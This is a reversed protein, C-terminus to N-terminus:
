QQGELRDIFESTIEEVAREVNLTLPAAFELSEPQIGMIIIECQFEQQIYNAAMTLPFTHTSASFGHISDTDLLRIEGAQGKFDAADVLIVLDANFRRLAGACNEPMVGAEVPMFYPRTTLRAKLERVVWLGAADDGNLESGVGVMAIRM